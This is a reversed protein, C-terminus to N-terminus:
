RGTATGSAGADKNCGNPCQWYRRPMRRSHSPYNPSWFQACFACRFHWRDQDLVEVGAYAMDLPHYRRPRQLEGQRVSVSLPMGTRGDALHIVAGARSEQNGQM